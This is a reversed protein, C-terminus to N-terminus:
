AATGQVLGRLATRVADDFDADTFRTCGRRKAAVRELFISRKEVPLRGAAKMVVALQRNSLSFM